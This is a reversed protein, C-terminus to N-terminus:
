SPATRLRARGACRRRSGAGPARTGCHVQLCGRHTVCRGRAAPTPRAKRLGPASNRRSYTARTQAAPKHRPPRCPRYRPGPFCWPRWPRYARSKYRAPWGPRGGPPCRTSPQADGRRCRSRTVAGCLAPMGKECVLRGKPGQSGRPRPPANFRELCEDEVTVVNLSGKSRSDERSAKGSGDVIRSLSWIRRSLRPGAESPSHEGPSVLRCVSRMATAAALRRLGAAM